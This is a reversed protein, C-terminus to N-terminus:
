ITDYYFNGSTLIEIEVQEDQEMNILDIVLNGTIEDIYVNFNNQGNAKNPVKSEFNIPFNKFYQVSTKDIPSLNYSNYKQTIQNSNSIKEYILNSGFVTDNRAINLIEQGGIDEFILQTMIDIPASEEDFLIYQPSATKVLSNDLSNSNNSYIIQPTNPISDSM